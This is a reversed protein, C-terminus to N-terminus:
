GPPCWSMLRSNAAGNPSNQKQSNFLCSCNEPARCIRLESNKIRLIDFRLRRSYRLLRRADALLSVRSIETWRANGDRTKIVSVCM